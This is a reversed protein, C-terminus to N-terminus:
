DGEARTKFSLHVSQSVSLWQVTGSVSRKRLSLMWIFAVAWMVDRDSVTECPLRVCVPVRMATQIKKFECESLQFSYFLTLAHGPTCSHDAPVFLNM